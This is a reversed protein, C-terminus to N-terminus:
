FSQMSFSVPGFVCYLMVTVAYQLYNALTYENLNVFLQLVHAEDKCGLFQKMARDFFNCVM